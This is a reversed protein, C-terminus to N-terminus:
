HLKRPEKVGCSHAINGITTVMNNVYHNVRQAKIDTVLGRQLHKKHTAIGTPCTNEHCRLAQICGLAFMFGRASNIFDAGMCLAWAVEAPKVLKGAAIVKIRDRLGYKILANVLLPLSERIPLGVYDILSMPAAGTGGEGGDLTIFDEATIGHKFVQEARWVNKKLTTPSAAFSLSPALAIMFTLFIVLIKLRKM